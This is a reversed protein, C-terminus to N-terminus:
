SIVKLFSGAIKFFLFLFDSIKISGYLMFYMNWVLFSKISLSILDPSSSLFIIIFGKLVFCKQPILSLNLFYRKSVCTKRLPRTFHYSITKTNASTPSYARYCIPQFVDNKWIRMGSREM